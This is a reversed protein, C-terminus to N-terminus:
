EPPKNIGGTHTFPKEPRLAGQGKSIGGFFGHRGHTLPAGLNSLSSLSFFPCMACLRIGPFGKHHFRALNVWGQFAIGLGLPCPALTGWSAGFPSWRLVKLVGRRFTFPRTLEGTGFWSLGWDLLFHAGGPIGTAKKGVMPTWRLRWFGRRHPVSEMVM